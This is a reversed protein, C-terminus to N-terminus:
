NLSKELADLDLGPKAAAHAPKPKPKAEVTRKKPAPAAHHSKHAAPHARPAPEATPQVPSPAEVSPPAEPIPAEAAAKAQAAVVAASAAVPEVPPQVPAAAVGAAPAAPAPAAHVSATTGTLAALRDRLAAPPDLVLAGIGAGLVFTIVCGIILPAAVGSRRKPERPRADLQLPRDSADSAAHREPADYAASDLYLPEEVERNFTFEVENM